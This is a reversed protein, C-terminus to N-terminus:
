FLGFGKTFTMCHSISSIKQPMGSSCETRHRECGHQVLIRQRFCRERFGISNQLRQMM